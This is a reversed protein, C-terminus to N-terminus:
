RVELLDDQPQQIEEDDNLVLDKAKTWIFFCYDHLFLNSFPNLFKIALNILIRLLSLYILIKNCFSIRRSIM